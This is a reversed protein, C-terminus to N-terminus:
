NRHLRRAMLVIPEWQFHIDFPSMHSLTRYLLTYVFNRKFSRHETNTALTVSLVTFAVDGMQRIKM